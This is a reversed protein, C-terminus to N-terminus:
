HALIFPNMITKAFNKEVIYPSREYERKLELTKLERVLRARFIKEDFPFFEFTQWYAVSLV